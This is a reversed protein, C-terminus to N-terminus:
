KPVPPPLLGRGGLGRIGAAHAMACTNADQLTDESTACKLPASPEAPLVPGALHSSIGAPVAGDFVAHGGVEEPPVDRALVIVLPGGFLRLEELLSPQRLGVRPRPPDSVTRSMQM